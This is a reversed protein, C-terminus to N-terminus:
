GEAVEAQDDDRTEVEAEAGKRLRCVGCPPPRTRLGHAGIAALEKTAGCKRCRCKWYTMGVAGGSREAVKWTGFTLGVLTSLGTLRPNRPPEAREADTALRVAPPLSTPTPAPAAPAASQPAVVPGAKCGACRPKAHLRQMRAIANSDWSRLSGCARCRFRWIRRSGKDSVGVEDVGVFTGIVVGAYDKRLDPREFQAAPAGGGRCSPCTKPPERKLIFGLISHTNGCSHRANWRVNRSNGSFDRSLATWGGFVQGTIDETKRGVGSAVRVRLESPEDTAPAPAPAPAPEENLQELLEEVSRRPRQAPETVVAPAKMLWAMLADVDARSEAHVQIGNPLVVKV